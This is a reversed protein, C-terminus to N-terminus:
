RIFYIVLVIGALLIRYWMFVSFNGRKLYELLYKIALFGFVTSSIVGLIFISNLDSPGLDKLKFLFAGIMAPTGLLFSFRAASERNLGLSRSAIMTIGSRSVGPILALSQAIGVILSQKYGIAPIKISKKIFRDVLYLVIGFIILNSALLIPSHLTSEIYDSILYGVIAAPITAVIIQWLLNPPFVITKNDTPKRNLASGIIAMWDKWFYFLIAIVTGLHLAVDFGLGRYDWSFIYPALVLHASSSIPLFETVGQIAGIILSQFIEMM